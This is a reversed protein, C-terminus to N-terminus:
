RGAALAPILVGGLRNGPGVPVPIPVNPGSPVTVYLRQGPAANTLGLNFRRVKALVEPRSTLTDARGASKLPLFFFPRKNEERLLRNAFEDRLVLGSRPPFSQSRTGSGDAEAARGMSM